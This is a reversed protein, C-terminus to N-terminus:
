RGLAQHRILALIHADAPAVRSAPAREPPVLPELEEPYELSRCLRSLLERHAAIEAALRVMDAAEGTRRSAVTREAASLEAKEWALLLRSLSRLTPTQRYDEQPKDM